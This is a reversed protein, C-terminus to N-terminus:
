FILKVIREQIIQMKMADANKEHDYGALHLIGHIVVRTLESNFPIKLLKAQKKVIQPCVFVENLEGFSLVDTPRNKRRYKKNIEKIKNSSVFVVSIEKLKGINAIKFTKRATKELRKKDIKYDTLNTVSLM